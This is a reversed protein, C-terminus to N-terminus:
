EKSRKILQTELIKLRSEHWLFLYTLAFLLNFVVIDTLSFSAGFSKKLGMLVATLIGNPALIQVFNKGVENLQM